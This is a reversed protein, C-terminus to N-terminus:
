NYEVLELENLLGTAHLLFFHGVIGNSFVELHIKKWNNKEYNSYAMTINKQGVNISKM